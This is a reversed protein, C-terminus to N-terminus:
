KQWNEASFVANREFVLTIIVNKGFLLLLKLLLVGFKEAFM